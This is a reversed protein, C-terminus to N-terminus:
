QAKKLSAQGHLSRLAWEHEWVASYMNKVIKDKRTRVVMLGLPIM